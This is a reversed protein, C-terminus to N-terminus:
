AGIMQIAHKLAPAGHTLFRHRSNAASVTVIVDLLARGSELTLQSNSDIQIEIEQVGRRLSFRSPRWIACEAELSLQGPFKRGGQLLDASGSWVAGATAPAKARTAFLILVCGLVAAIPLLRVDGHVIFAATLFGLALVSLVFTAWRGKTRRVIEVRM